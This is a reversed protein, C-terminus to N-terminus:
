AASMTYTDYWEEYRVVTTSWVTVVMECKGADYGVEFSVVWFVLWLYEVV